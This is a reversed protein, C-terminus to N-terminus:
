KLGLNFNFAALMALASAFLEIDGRDAATFCADILWNMKASHNLMFEVNQDSLAIAEVSPQEKPTKHEDMIRQEM